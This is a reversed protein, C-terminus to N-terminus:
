EQQGNGIPAVALLLLPDIIEFGLISAQYLLETFPSDRQGIVL